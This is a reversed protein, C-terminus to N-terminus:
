DDLAKFKWMQVQDSLQIPLMDWRKRIRALAAEKKSVDNIPKSEELVGLMVNGADSIEYSSGVAYSQRNMTLPHEKQVLEAVLEQIVYLQDARNLKKLDTLLESLVM